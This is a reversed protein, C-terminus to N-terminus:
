DAPGPLPQAQSTQAAELAEIRAELERIRQDRWEQNEERRVQPWAESEAGIDSAEAPPKADFDPMPGTASAPEVRGAQSDALTPEHPMPLPEARTGSKEVFNRPPTNQNRTSTAITGRNANPAPLGNRRYYGRARLPADYAWDDWERPSPYDTRGKWYARYRVGDPPTNTRSTAQSDNRDSRRRRGLPWASAPEPLVMAVLLAVIMLSLCHTKM